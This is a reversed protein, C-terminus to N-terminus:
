EQDRLGNQSKDLNAEKWTDFSRNQLRRQVEWTCLWRKDYTELTTTQGNRNGNSLQNIILQSREFTEFWLDNKKQISYLYEYVDAADMVLFKEPTPNDTIEDVAERVHDPLTAQETAVNEEVLTEIEDPHPIGRWDDLPHTLAMDDIEVAAVAPHDPSPRRMTNGTSQESDTDTNWADGLQAQTTSM